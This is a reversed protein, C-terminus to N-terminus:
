EGTEGTDKPDSLRRLDELRIVVSQQSALLDRMVDDPHRAAQESSVNLVSQFLGYTQAPLATELYEMGLGRLVRDENHLARFAVKLPERPLMVSLLSFVHELAQNTRDRLVEDLFQYPDHDHPEHAEERAELIRRGDWINGSSSLEREVARMLLDHNFHLGPKTRHLSELARSIQFRVEFRPDTLAEQLGEVVSQSPVSRLIRPIRRRVTADQEPDRLADTLQGTIKKAHRELYRHAERKVEDSALLQIVQAVALPELPADKGLAMRVRQADQSRLIQLRRLAGDTTGPIPGPHAPASSQPLPESTSSSETQVTRPSRKPRPTAQLANIGVSTTQFESQLADYQPMSKLFVSVSSTDEGPEQRLQDARHLLGHELAALYASDMRAAIWACLLSFGIVVVLLPQVAAQAGLLLFLQITGAGVADGFRDCVVDIVTKVARKQQSPIPTFFLEYGARFLSGRLIADGIRSVSFLAFVPMFFAAAGSIALTVPLTSVTRGLGLSRLATPTAVTQLLFAALQIGTYFFAFFRALSPGSGFTSAAGSRFLYDVIGSSITTLIILLALSGLFPARRIAERATGILNAQETSGEQARIPVMEPRARLVFIVVFAIAHFAALLYLLSDVSVWSAVREAALGGFVGGATGAATIKGFNRKAEGPSFSENILSWFVSLAIGSTVVIHLYTFVVVPGRYLILLSAESLHLAVSLALTAPLIRSPGFRVLLRASGLGLIVSLIAAAAVMKPLDTAPFQDLFLTDRAAKAAVQHAMM